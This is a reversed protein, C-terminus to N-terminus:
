LLIETMKMLTLDSWQLPIQRTMNVFQIRSCSAMLLVEWHHVHDRHLLNFPEKRDPSSKRHPPLAREEQTPEEILEFVSQSNPEGNPWSALSCQVVMSYFSCYRLLHKLVTIPDPNKLRNEFNSWTRRFEDSMNQHDKLCAAPLREAKYLCRVESM